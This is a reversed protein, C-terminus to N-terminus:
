KFKVVAVNLNAVFCDKVAQTYVLGKKVLKLYPLM